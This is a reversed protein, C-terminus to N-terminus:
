HHESNSKLKGWETLGVYIRAQIDLLQKIHTSTEGDPSVKLPFFSSSHRTLNVISPAQYLSIVLVHDM